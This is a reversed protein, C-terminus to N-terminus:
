VLANLLAQLKLAVEALEREPLSGAVVGAGGYLRARHGDVLASRIGVAFEGNGASDVWGIPAAYLGREFPELAQILPLVQARDAGAVAPTPHLAGVIDLLHVSPPVPARIPTQLHQIHPLQLLRASGLQPAIGLSELTQVMFDIVLQHEHAEKPSARLASACDADLSASQGRPASGALAETELQQGQIRVLREPSAGLFTQGQGNGIAFRYRSPYRQRLNALSAVPRLPQLATVDLARALVIKAFKGAAIQTLATEVATCFRDAAGVECIQWPERDTWGMLGVEVRRLAQYEQWLRQSQEAVDFSQDMRLNVVAATRDGDRRLQWRPLQVSAAPFPSDPAVTDFFAFSCFFHLRYEADNPHIVTRNDGRDDVFVAQGQWAAIQAQVLKFRDPGTFAASRTTGLGLLASNQGSNEFYCYREGTESFKELVRLFDFEPVDVAISLIFEASESKPPPYARWFNALFDALHQPTKFCDQRAPIVPM